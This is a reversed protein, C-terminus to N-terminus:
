LKTNQCLCPHHSHGDHPTFICTASIGQTGSSRSDLECQQLVCSLVRMHLEFVDSESTLIASHKWKLYAVKQILLINFRVALQVPAAVGDVM